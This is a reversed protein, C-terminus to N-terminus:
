IDRGKKKLVYLAKARVTDPELPVAGGVPSDETKVPSRFGMIKKKKKKGQFPIASSGTKEKQLVGRLRGNAKKREESEAPSAEGKKL